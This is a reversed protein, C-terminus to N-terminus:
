QRPLQYYVHNSYTQNINNLTNPQEHSLLRPLMEKKEGATKLRRHPHKLDEQVDAINMMPEAPYSIEVVKDKIHGHQNIFPVTPCCHHTIRKKPPLIIAGDQHHLGTDWRTTPLPITMGSDSFSEINSSTSEVDMGQIFKDPASQHNFKDSGEYLDVYSNSLPSITPTPEIEMEQITKHNLLHDFEDSDHRDIVLNSFLAINDSTSENVMGQNSANVSASSKYHEEWHSRFSNQLHDVEEKTLSKETKDYDIKIQIITNQSSQAHLTQRRRNDLRLQRSKESLREWQDIEGKTLKEIIVVPKSQLNNDDPKVNYAELSAMNITLNSTPQHYTPIIRVDPQDKFQVRRSKRPNQNKSLRNQNDEFVNTKYYNIFDFGEEYPPSTIGNLSTQIDQNIANGSGFLDFDKEPRTVGSNYNKGPRYMVNTIERTSKIDQWTKHRNLKRHDSTSSDSRQKYMFQKSKRNKRSEFPMKKQIFKSASVDKDDSVTKDSAITYKNDNYLSSHEITMENGNDLHSQASGSTNIIDGNRIHQESELVQGTNQADHAFDVHMDTSRSSTDPYETFYNTDENRRELNSSSPSNNLTEFTNSSLHPLAVMENITPTSTPIRDSYEFEYKDRSRISQRKQFNEEPIVTSKSAERIASTDKFQSAVPCVEMKDCKESITKRTNIEKDSETVLEVIAESDTNTVEGINDYERDDSPPTLINGLSKEIDDNSSPQQGIDLIHEQSHENENIQSDIESVSLPIDNHARIQEVTSTQSKATKDEPSTSITGLFSLNSHIEETKECPDTSSKTSIMDEIQDDDLIEHIIETPNYIVGVFHCDDDSDNEEILESSTSRSVEAMSKRYNMYYEDLDPDETKDAAPDIRDIEFDSLNSFDQISETQRIKFYERIMVNNNDIHALADLIYNNQPLIVRKLTENTKVDEVTRDFLSYMTEDMHKWTSEDKIKKWQQFLIYARCFALDTKEEPKRRLFFARYLHNMFHRHEKSNENIKLKMLVHLCRDERCLLYLRIYYILKRCIPNLHRKYNEEPRWKPLLNLTLNSYFTMIEEMNDLYTDDYCFDLEILCTKFVYLHRIIFSQVLSYDSLLSADNKLSGCTFM